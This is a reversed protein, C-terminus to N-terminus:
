FDPQSFDQQALDRSLAPLAPKVSRLFAAFAEVNGALTERIPQAANEEFHRYVYRRGDKSLTCANNATSFEGLGIGGSALMSLVWEEVLPRAPEVLDCGLSDRGAFPEHYIGIAPDLGALAILRAADFYALSYGLSLCVNVPDRPPRRNRGNFTFPKKVVAAFAEFFAATAAGEIGRLMAVPPVDPAKLRALAQTLRALRPEAPARRTIVEIAGELRAVILAAALKARTGGEAVLAYQAPKLGRDASAPGVMAPASKSRGSDIMLGIGAEALAAVLRGSVRAGRNAIVREIVALPWTGAREGNQRMVIRGGEIDLDCNAKDVFLTSM